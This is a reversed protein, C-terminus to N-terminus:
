KRLDSVTDDKYEATTCDEDGTRPMAGRHSVGLLAPAPYGHWSRELEHCHPECGKLWQVRWSYLSVM